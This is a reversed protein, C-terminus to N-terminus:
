HYRIRLGLKDAAPRGGDGRDEAFYVVGELDIAVRFNGRCGTAPNSFAHEAGVESAARQGMALARADESLLCVQADPAKVAKLFASVETRAASVAVNAMAVRVLDDGSGAAVLIVLRGPGARTLMGAERQGEGRCPLVHAEGYEVLAADRTAFEEIPRVQGMGSGPSVEEPVDPGPREQAVQPEDPTLLTQPLASFEPFAELTSRLLHGREVLFEVARVDSPQRINTVVRNGFALEVTVYHVEDGEDIRFWIENTDVRFSACVCPDLPLPARPAPGRLHARVPDSVVWKLPLRKTHSHMKGTRRHGPTEQRTDPPSAAAEGSAARGKQGLPLM